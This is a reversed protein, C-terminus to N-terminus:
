HKKLQKVKDPMKPQGFFFPCGQNASKKAESYAWKAILRKMREGEKM